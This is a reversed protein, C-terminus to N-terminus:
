AAGSKKLLMQVIWIALGVAVSILYVRNNWSDSPAGKEPTPENFFLREILMPVFVSVIVSILIIAAIKAPLISITWIFLLLLPSLYGVCLGLLIPAIDFDAQKKM